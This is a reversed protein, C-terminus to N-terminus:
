FDIVEWKCISRLQSQPIAVPQLMGLIAPSIFQQMFYCSQINTYHHLSTKFVFQVCKHNSPCGSCVRGYASRQRLGKTGMKGLTATPPQRQPLHHSIDFPVLPVIVPKGKALLKERPRDDLAWSKITLKEM